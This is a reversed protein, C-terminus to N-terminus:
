SHLILVLDSNQQDINACDIKVYNRLRGDFYWYVTHQGQATYVQIRRVCIIEALGLM